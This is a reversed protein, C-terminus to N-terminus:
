KVIFKRGNKIYVGGKVPTEVRRGSLDFTPTETESLEVDEIGTAMGGFYLGSAYLGLSNDAYARNAPIAAISSSTPYFGVVRSTKGVGFLLYDARNDDTLALSVTTGDLSSEVADENNGIKLTVTKAAPAEMVFGNLAKVSEVEQMEIYSSGIVSGAVYAKADADENTIDFPLYLSAYANGVSAAKLDVEVSEVKVAKFISGDGGWRDLIYDGSAFGSAEMNICDHAGSGYAFRFTKADADAVRVMYTQASALSTLTAAPAPSGGIVASIYAKTEDAAGMNPHYLKFGSGAPVLQWIQNFDKASADAGAPNGAANIGLDKSQKTNTFRYYNGALPRYVNWDDSVIDKLTIGEIDLETSLLDCIEKEETLDATLLVKEAAALEEDLAVAYTTFVWSTAEATEWNVISHSAAEHMKNYQGSVGFAASGYRNGDLPYVQLTQPEVVLTWAGSANAAPQAYLETESNKLTYGGEVATIEWVSRDARTTIGVMTKAATASLWRDTYSYNSLLYKGDTLPIKLETAPDFVTNCRDNAEAYTTPVFTDGNLLENLADLKTQDVSFVTTGVHAAAETAYDRYEQIRDAYYDVVSPVEDFAWISGGDVSYYGVRTKNYDNWCKSEDFTNEQSIAYGTYDGSTASKFYWTTAAAEDAGYTNGTLDNLYQAKETNYLKVPTIGDTTEGAYVLKWIADNTVEKQQAPTNEVTAGSVNKDSRANRILYPQAYINQYDTANLDEEKPLNAIRENAEAMTTPVPTLLSRLENLKEENVDFLDTGVNPENTTIFDSIYQTQATFYAAANMAEVEGQEKILYAVNPFAAKYADGSGNPVLILSGKYNYFVDTALEAPPTTGEFTVEAPCNYFIYGGMKALSAPLTIAALSTCSEFAWSEITTLNGLINLTTLDECEYFATYGITEVSAPLTITTSKNRYFAYRVIEKVTEPITVTAARPAFILQTKDKNLLVGNESAYNPNSEAVIIETLSECNYFHSYELYEISSPLSVSQLASCNDLRNYIETIGEPFVISTIDSRDSFVKQEVKKVNYAESTNPDTATAPIVVDSGYSSDYAIVTCEGTSTNGRYTLGDETSFMTEDGAFIKESVNDYYSRFNNGESSPVYIATGQFEEFVTWYNSNYCEPVHSNFKVNATCNRFAYEDVFEISAPLTITSSAAYNEFAYEEVGVVRYSNGNGDDVYEDVTGDVIEGADYNVLICEGTATIRYTFGNVSFDGEGVEYIKDAVYDWRSRYDDGSGKPVVISLGQYDRFAYYGDLYYYNFEDKITVNATCYAFANDGIASYTSQPIIFTGIDTCNNFANAAIKNPYVSWWSANGNDDIEEFSVYNPISARKTGYWGWGSDLGTLEADSYGYYDKEVFFCFGDQKVTRAGDSVFKDAVNYYVNQYESKTGDPVTISSGSYCDFVSWADNCQTANGKFRLDASCNYFAYKGLYTVGSPIIISSFSFCDRFVNSAISKVTYYNGNDDSFGEDITAESNYYGWYSEDYGILTAEYNWYEDVELRYKFGNYTYIVDDAAVIKDAAEPFAARYTDGCGAPVSIQDGYFNSLTEEWENIKSPPTTGEFVVDCYSYGFVNGGISTVSSPITVSTLAYCWAFADFGISTVGDPITISTM